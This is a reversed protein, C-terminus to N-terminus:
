PVCVQADITRSGILAGSWPAKKQELTCVTIMLLSLPSMSSVGFPLSATWLDVILARGMRSQPPVITMLTVIM